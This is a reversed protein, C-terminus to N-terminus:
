VLFTIGPPTLWVVVVVFFLTSNVNEAKLIEKSLMIEIKKMVLSWILITLDRLGFKQGMEVGEWSSVSHIMHGKINLHGSLQKGAEKFSLFFIINPWQNLWIFSMENGKEPNSAATELLAMENHKTDTLAPSIKFLKHVFSKFNQIIKFSSRQIQPM